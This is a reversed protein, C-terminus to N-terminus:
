VIGRTDHDERYEAARMHRYTGHSTLRIEVIRFDGTLLLEDIQAVTVDVKDGLRVGTVELPVLFNMEKRMMPSGGEEWNLDKQGMPQLVCKGNYIVTPDGPSLLEGTVEDLVDDSEGGPDRSIICEDNMFSEIFAKGIAHPFPVSM